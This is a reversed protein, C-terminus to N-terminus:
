RYRDRGMGAPWGYGTLTDRRKTQQKDPKRRGIREALTLDYIGGELDSEESIKKIGRNRLSRYLIGDVETVRYNQDVQRLSLIMNIAMDWDGRTYAAQLNNFKDEIPRLDETPTSTQTRTATGTPPVPSPTATAYLVALAEALKDAAGPYAPERALIYEFRQRALDYHGSRLEQVGLEYQEVLSKVSLASQTASWSAHAVRYGSAAGITGLLIFAVLALIVWLIWFYRRSKQTDSQPQAEVSDPNTM